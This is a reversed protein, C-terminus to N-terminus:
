VEVGFLNKALLGVGFSVVAVGISILAMEAFRRLFRQEGTVSTYYTFAAIILVVVGLMTALAYLYNTFLLFPLILLVVTILYAIGTYTCSKFADSRGESRKAVWQSLSKQVIYRKAEGLRLPSM